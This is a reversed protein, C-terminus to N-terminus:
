VIGAAVHIRQSTEDYAIGIASNLKGVSISPQVLAPNNPTSIIEREAPQGLGSIDQELEQTNHEFLKETEKVTVKLKRIKTEIEKIMNDKMSHLM